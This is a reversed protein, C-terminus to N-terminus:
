KRFNYIKPKGGKEKILNQVKRYTALDIIKQHNGKNVSGEFRHYGCYIPNKLIASITKKSWKGGRKSQIKQYNLM